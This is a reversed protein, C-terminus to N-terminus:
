GGSRSMAYVGSWKIQKPEDNSRPLPRQRKIAEAAAKLITLPDDGRQGIEVLLSIAGGGGLHMPDEIAERAVVKVLQGLEAWLLPFVESGKINLVGMRRLLKIFGRIMVPGGCWKSDGMSLSSISGDEAQHSDAYYFPVVVPEGVGSPSDRIFLM